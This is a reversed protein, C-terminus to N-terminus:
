GGSEAARAEDLLQQRREPPLLRAIHGLETKWRTSRGLWVGILGAVAWPLVHIGMLLAITTANFGELALGLIPAAVLDVAVALVQAGVCVLLMTVVPLQDARAGIWRGIVYAVVITATTAGMIAGAVAAAFDFGVLAGVFGGFFSAANLVAVMVLTGYIALRQWAISFSQDVRPRAPAADGLRRRLMRARVERHVPAIFGLPMAALPGAIAQNLGIASMAGILVVFAATVLLVALGLGLNDLAQRGPSQSEPGPAVPGAPISDSTGTSPGLGADLRLGCRACFAM